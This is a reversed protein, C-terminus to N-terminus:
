QAGNQWTSRPWHRPLQGVVAAHWLAQSVPLPQPEPQEPTDALWPADGCTGENERQPSADSAAKM